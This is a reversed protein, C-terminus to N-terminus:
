DPAADVPFSSMPPSSPRSLAGPSHLPAPSAPRLSHPAPAHSRTLTPSPPPPSPRTVFSLLLSPFHRANSSDAARSNSDCPPRSRLLVPRALRLREGAKKRRAEGDAATYYSKKDEGDEGEEGHEGGRGDHAGEVDEGEENGGKGTSECGGWWMVDVRKVNGYGRSGVQVRM